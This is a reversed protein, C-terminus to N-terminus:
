TDDFLMFSIYTVFVDRLNGTINMPIPGGLAVVLMTFVTIILGSVSSLCFLYIFEYRSDGPTMLIDFVILHNGSYIVYPAIICFGVFSFFFCTDFANILKKSNFTSILIYSFAGIFNTIWVVIFGIYDRDLTEYGAIFSGLVQLSVAFIMDPIPIEGKAIYTAIVTAFIACRRNAGYM